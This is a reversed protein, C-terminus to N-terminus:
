RAFRGQVVDRDHIRRYCDPQSELGPTYVVRVLRELGAPLSSVANRAVDRWSKRQKHYVGGSPSKSEHWGAQYDSQQPPAEFIPQIAVRRAITYMGMPLRNTMQVRKRVTAPNAVTYWRGGRVDERFLVAVIEFGNEPAFVRYSLEPSFQYFGHGTCNNAPGAQIFCGGQRLMEMCNRVAQPFNFVHELTGGDYVTTYREKLSEDIPTNLDHILTAGEFPSADMSDVTDAGLLRFFAEAWGTSENLLAAPDRDIGRLEFMRGLERPDPFFFQRGITLTERFDVGSAKAGFLLQASATGVGMRHERSVVSEDGRFGEADRRQKSQGRSAKVRIPHTRYVFPGLLSRPVALWRGEDLRVIRRKYREALVVLAYSETPPRDGDNHAQLL